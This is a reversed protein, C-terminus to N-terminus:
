CEMTILHLDKPAEVDVMGGGNPDSERVAGLSNSVFEFLAPFNLNKLEFVRNPNFIEVMKNRNFNEVGVCYGLVGKDREVQKLRQVADAYSDNPEGDTIVFIWPRFYPTGLTNYKAKQEGVMDLAKNLAAGLPTGGHATLTPPIMESVPIFDQLLQVTAGFSVIAVDICAKTHEDFEPNMITQDRFVRLGENLKGIADNADMSGSADLLFVCAVHRETAWKIPSMVVDEVAPMGEMAGDYGAYQANNEEKKTFPRQFIGM